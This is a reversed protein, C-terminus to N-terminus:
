FNDVTWKVAFTLHVSRLHSTLFSINEFLSRLFASIIHLHLTVSNIKYCIYSSRANIVKKGKFFYTSIKGQGELPMKLM